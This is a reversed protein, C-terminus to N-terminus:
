CTSLSGGNPYREPFLDQASLGLAAAIATEMRPYPRRLAHSSASRSVGLTRAIASLSTGRVHLQYVIWAGRAKAERPIENTM